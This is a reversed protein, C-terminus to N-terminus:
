GRERGSARGIEVGRVLEEFGERDAAGPAASQGQDRDIVVIQEEPWGLGVARQRLGYQRQASETNEVVQRVSSQRVYLYAARKLHEAKIKQGTNM